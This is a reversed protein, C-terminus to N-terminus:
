IQKENQWIKDCVNKTISCIQILVCHHNFIEYITYWLKVIRIHM